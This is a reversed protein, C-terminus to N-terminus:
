RSAAAAPAIRRECNAGTFGPKCETLTGPPPPASQPQTPSARQAYVIRKSANDCTGVVRGAVADGAKVVALSFSQVGALRIKQEIELKLAECTVARCPGAAALLLAALTTIVTTTRIM